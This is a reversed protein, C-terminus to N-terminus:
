AERSAVQVNPNRWILVPAELPTGNPDTMRMNHVGIVEFGLSQYLPLGMPSAELGADCGDRAARELGLKVLTAGIGKRRASSHVALLQLHWREMDKGNKKWFTEELEPNQNNTGEMCSWDKIPNRFTEVSERGYKEWQAYGVVKKKEVENEVVSLEAVITVVNQETLRKKARKKFWLRFHYPDEKRRPYIAGFLQDNMMADAGCDAIGDVDRLTAVRYTPTTM